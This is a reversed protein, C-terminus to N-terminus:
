KVAAASDAERLRELMRARIDVGDPKPSVCGNLPQIGQFFHAPINGFIFLAQGYAIRKRYTEPAIDGRLQDM